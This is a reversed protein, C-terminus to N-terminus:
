PRTIPEPGDDIAALEAQVDPPACCLDVSGLALGEAFPEPVNTDHRPDLGYRACSIRWADEGLRRISWANVRPRLSSCVPIEVDFFRSGQPIRAYVTPGDWGKQPTFEWCAGDLQASATRHKLTALVDAAVM